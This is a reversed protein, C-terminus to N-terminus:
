RLLRCLGPPYDRLARKREIYGMGNSRLILSKLKRRLTAESKQYLHLRCKGNRVYFGYGFFKLRGIYACETNERNVKLKLTVEIFKTISGKIREAARRSKCFILGDDAYRVFPHGRRELEQDLENLLINALLPSLPSGQPTGERTAEIKGGIMM